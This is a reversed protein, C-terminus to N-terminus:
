PSFRTICCNQAWLSSNIRTRSEGGTGRCACHQQSQCGKFIDGPSLYATTSTMVIPTPRSIRKCTLLRGGKVTEEAHLMPSDSSLSAVNFGGVARATASNGIRRSSLLTVPTGNSALKYASFLGALGTGVVIVERDTYM